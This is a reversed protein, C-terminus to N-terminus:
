SLITKQFAFILRISGVASEKRGKKPLYYIPFLPANRTQFFTIPLLHMQIGPSGMNIRVQQLYKEWNTIKQFGDTLASDLYM